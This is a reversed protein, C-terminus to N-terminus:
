HWFLDYMFLVIEIAILIIITWELRTEYRSRLVELFVKYNEQVFGITSHINKFREKIEFEDSLRVHLLDLMRNEWASEPKELVGIGSVIEHVLLNNRAIMRMVEKSSFKIKGRMSLQNNLTVFQEEIKECEDEYSELAVSQALVRAIVRMINHDYKKVFVGSTTVHFGKSQFVKMNHDQVVEYDETIPHRKMSIDAKRLHDLIEKEQDQSANILVISGFSYIYITTGNMRYVATERTVSVPNFPLFGKIKTIPLEKAVYIAKLRYVM